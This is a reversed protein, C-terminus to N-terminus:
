GVRMLRSIAASIEQTKAEQVRGDVTAAEELCVHMHEDILALSVAQMARTVAAIQTIVDICYRDDEIMRTIGRVQGEVRAMRKLLHDKESFNRSM